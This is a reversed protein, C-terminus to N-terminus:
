EIKVGCEKCHKADSDNQTHCSVCVKAGEKHKLMMEQVEPYSWAAQAHWCDFSEDLECWLRFIGRQGNEKVYVNIIRDPGSPLKELVTIHDDYVNVHILLHLNKVKELQEESLSAQLPKGEAALQANMLQEAVKRGKETLSYTYKKTGMRTETVTILGREESYMRIKELTMNSPVITGIIQYQLSPGHENLFLLLDDSYARVTATDYKM